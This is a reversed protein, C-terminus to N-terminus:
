RVPRVTFASTLGAGPLTRPFTNEQYADLGWTEVTLVGDGDIALTTYAFQDPVFFDLSEPAGGVAGCRRHTVTVGPYVDPLLGILPQKLAAQKANRLELAKRLTDCDHGPFGDPGGAGIPGSVIHFTAPVNALSGDKARYQLPTVRVLHDDTTLVVVNRIGNEAIFALLEQREARYGGFWSKGDQNQTGPAPWRSGPRPEGSGVQDMPSATGIVKWTFGDRQAALLKEKLWALQTRGLMTRGPNDARPGTDDGGDRLGLRADRYTRADTQIYLLHAGWPQAFWNRPTGHMRPDNTSDVTPGVVRMGTAPTGAISVRMPHYGYFAKEMARFGPTANNFLGTENVDFDPEANSGRAIPPAGGSQLDRSGVEHNDYLTYSGTAQLMPRMGQQGDQSPLGDPGVGLINERYKRQYDRLGAMAQDVGGRPTVDITAPSGTARTEYITDGLFLLFDLDRAPISAAAPYPRFRGDADGTFGFRVGARVNPLPATVFRGVDEARCAVGCFRYFYRTGPALGEVTTRGTFDDEAVTTVTRTVVPSAFGPDTAIEARLSAAGGNDTARAWLVISTEAPDGAAVADIVPDALAPAICAAGVLLSLLLRHIM